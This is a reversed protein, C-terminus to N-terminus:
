KILRNLCLYILSRIKEFNSSFSEVSLLDKVRKLDASCDPPVLGELKELYTQLEDLEEKEIEDGVYECLNIDWTLLYSEVFLEYLDLDFGEPPEEADILGKIGKHVAEIVYYCKDKIEDPQRIRLSTSLGRVDISLPTELDVRTREKLIKEMEIFHQNVIDWRVDGHLAFVIQFVQDLIKLILTIQHIHAEQVRKQEALELEQAARRREIDNDLENKFADLSQIDDSFFIVESEVTEAKYKITLKHTQRLPTQNKELQTSTVMSIPSETLKVLEKSVLGREAWLIFTDDAIELFGSVGNPLRGKIKQMM